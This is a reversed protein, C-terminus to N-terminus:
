ARWFPKRYEESAEARTLGIDRLLREDMDALQQRQRLRNRWELLLAYLPGLLIAGDATRGRSGADPLRSPIRPDYTTRATSSM